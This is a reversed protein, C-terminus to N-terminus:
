NHHTGLPESAARGTGRTYKILLKTVNGDFLRPNEFLIRFYSFFPNRNTGKATVKIWCLYNSNFMWWDASWLMLWQVIVAGSNGVTLCAQLMKCIWNAKPGIDVATM